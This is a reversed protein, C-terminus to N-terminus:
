FMVQIKRSAVFPNQKDIGALRLIYIGSSLRNDAIQFENYSGSIPLITQLLVNGAIDFLQLQYNGDTLGFTQLTIEQLGSAFAHVSSVADTGCTVSVIGLEEESGDANVIILKYYGGTGNAAVFSYNTETLTNGAAQIATLFNYHIGDDSVELIFHDTNIEQATQWSLVANQLVCEAEFSILVLPLLHTTQDLLTWVRTFDVANFPVGSVYNSTTNVVGGVPYIEWNDAPDDYREAKLDAETITNGAALHEADDYNFQIDGSPKTTYGQADMMWFRDIVESSNNFTAMNTMNTVGTPKYNNNDWTPGGYTSFQINGAGTGGGSINMTLPIKIGSATTFPLVYNGTATGIHWKVINSEDESIINGGTGTTTIANAANNDVVLYVNYSMVIYANNNIVIRSQSFGAMAYLFLLLFLWKKM